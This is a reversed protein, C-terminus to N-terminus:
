AALEISLSTMANKYGYARYKQNCDEELEGTELQTRLIRESRTLVAGTSAKLDLKQAKKIQQRARVAEARLTDRNPVSEVAGAVDDAHHEDVSSQEQLVATLQWTKSTM